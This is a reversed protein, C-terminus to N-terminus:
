SWITRGSLPSELDLDDYCFKGGAEFFKITLGNISKRTANDGYTPIVNEYESGCENELSNIEMASIVRTSLNNFNEVSYTSLPM